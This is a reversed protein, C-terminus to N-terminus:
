LTEITCPVPVLAQFDGESGLEKMIQHSSLMVRTIATITLAALCDEEQLLEELQKIKSYDM